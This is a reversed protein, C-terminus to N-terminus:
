LPLNGGLARTGLYVAGQAGQNIVKAVQGGGRSLADVAREGVQSLLPKQSFAEQNAERQRFAPTDILAAAAARGAAANDFVNSIFSLDAPQQPPTVFKSQGRKLWVDPDPPSGAAQPTATKAQKGKLWEDPDPLNDPM